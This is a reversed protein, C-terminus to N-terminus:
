RPLLKKKRVLRTIESVRVPVISQGAPRNITQIASRKGEATFPWLYDDAQIVGHVKKAYALIPKARVPMKSKGSRTLGNM